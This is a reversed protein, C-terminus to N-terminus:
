GGRSGVSDSDILRVHDPAHHEPSRVSFGQCERVPMLRLAHPARPDAWRELLRAHLAASQEASSYGILDFFGAREAEVDTRGLLLVSLRDPVRVGAGELLDRFVSGDEVGWVILADYPLRGTGDAQKCLAAVVAQEYGQHPLQPLSMAPHLTARAGPRSSIHKYRQLGLENALFPHATTVFGIQEHGSRALLTVAREIPEGWEFGVADVDTGVLWTGDVVIADTKRRITALMEIPMEEFSNQVVCADFRPLGHLVQRAHAADSYAVELTLDGGEAFRRQLDDVVARARRIGPSRRLILVSRPREGSASGIESRERDRSPGGTFFTGRGVHAAILGEKKLDALVRQVAPQALGHDEMLRRVTPFRDGPEARAALDHLYARLKAVDPSRDRYLAIQRM